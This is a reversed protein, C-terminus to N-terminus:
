LVLAVPFGIRVGLDLIPLHIEKAWTRLDKHNTNWAVTRENFEALERQDRRSVLSVETIVHRALTLDTRRYEAHSQITASKPHYSTMPLTSSRWRHRLPVGELHTM